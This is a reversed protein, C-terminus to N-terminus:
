CNRNSLYLTVFSHSERQKDGKLLRHRDSDTKRTVYIIIYNEFFNHIFIVNIFDNIIYKSFMIKISEKEYTM